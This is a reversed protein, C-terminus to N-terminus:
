PPGGLEVAVAAPGTVRGSVVKKSDINQVRVTQGLRGDGLAEGVASVTLEGVRVTMSVRQKTKVLVPEPAAAPADVDAAAVVEGAALPRRAKKGAVEEAPPFRRNPDVARREARVASEDLVTGATLPRVAVAVVQVPRADLYVPLTLKREGRVAIAVDMQTRGLKVAPAHPTATITVEDGAVVEPLAAAVPVAVEVAVEDAPVALKRLLAAKAAAVVEDVAVTRRVVALAVRDAGTVRFDAPALGALRLRYEVQRRTVSAAADRAPLDAVDLRRVWARTTEDAGSLAAVDGVTVVAAAVAAREPLEVTLPEAAAAPAALVAAM